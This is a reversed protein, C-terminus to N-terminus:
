KACLNRKGPSWYPPTGTPDVWIFIFTPLTSHHRGLGGIEAKPRHVKKPSGWKLNLGFDPGLIKKLQGFPIGLHYNVCLPPAICEGECDGNLQLFIRRPLYKLTRFMFDNVDAGHVWERACRRDFNDRWRSASHDCRPLANWTELFKAARGAAAVPEPAAGDAMNM